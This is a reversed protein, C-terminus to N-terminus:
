RQGRRLFAQVRPDTCTELLERPPGAAIVTAAERDLMISDDAVAFISALEHTVIVITSGLSDRLALILDDLRKSSVPDLGAGPEDFFMIEPDLAMARALGARKRMGGSLESPYYTEFGALGVLALKTRVTEATTAADMTTFQELPLAVNEGLTMSSWLAGNQYLVGMRRIMAQRRADDADWFSTDGYWVSGQTPPKLGIMARMLTSKGCGSGGMIIFVEGRRIRFSVSRLILTGGYGLALDEVRIHTRDRV